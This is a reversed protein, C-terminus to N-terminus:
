FRSLVETPTSVGEAVRRHPLADRKLALRGLLGREALLLGDVGLQQLAPVAVDRLVDTARQTETFVSLDTHLEAPAAPTLRKTSSDSNPNNKFVHQPKIM